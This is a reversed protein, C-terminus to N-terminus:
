PGAARAHGRGAPVVALRSIVGKIAIPEGMVRHDDLAIAAVAQGSVDDVVTYFADAGLAGRRSWHSTGPDAVAGVGVVSVAAQPTLPDAVLKAFDLVAVGNGGSQPIYALMRNYNGGPVLFHTGRASPQGSLSVTHDVAVGDGLLTDWVNVEGQTCSPEDVCANIVLIFRHDPSQSVSGSLPLKDRVVSDNSTDVISFGQGGTCQFYAYGNFPSIAKDHTGGAPMGASDTYGCVPIAYDVTKHDLDLPFVAADNTNTAYAKPAISPDYVLKGHGSNDLAAVVPGMLELTDIDAIYFAGEADSHTWIEHGHNPNYLHTPRGGVDLRAEVAQAATDIVVLQNKGRDNVFLREGSPAVVADGWNAGHMEIEELVPREAGPRLITIWAEDDMPDNPSGLRQSFVYLQEFAHGPAPPDVLCVNFQIQDTTNRHTAEIRIEWLGAMALDMGAIEFVGDGFDPSRDRVTIPGADHAHAPMRAEVEMGVGMPPKGSMDLLQVLWTHRGPHEPWPSANLLRVIFEGETGSHELGPRLAHCGPGGQPPLTTVPMAAMEIATAIGQLTTRDSAGFGGTPGAAMQIATAIGQLTTRDSTGFGGTAPATALLDQLWTRDEPTLGHAAHEDEGGCALAAVALLGAVGIMSGSSSPPRM